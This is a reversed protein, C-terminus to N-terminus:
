KLVEDWARFVEYVNEPNAGPGFECQAVCGGDRWLTEKVKKVAEFIDQRTGEVLLHQRDIEGWFTMKGAYPELKEVGICFIQANLADLGLDILEPIIQLTNGDSHMFMAKNHRKAIDIYDKYMPRFIKKWMEPNILLTNQSGWDDMIRLADVDTKGWEELLECYFAHMKGLFKEMNEPMDMLDMYLNETGRIFQLQEFPRPCVGSFVYKDTSRCFANVADRDFTLQEVPIHAAEVDEWDEGKIIPEKVEGIIGPHINQFICGWQDRYTGPTYPDGEEVTRTGLLEPACVFDSEYERQIKHLMEGHNMEAWPLTWLDRPARGDRNEFNLTRKVLERSTMTRRVERGTRRIKQNGQEPEM